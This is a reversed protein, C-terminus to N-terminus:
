SPVSVTSSPAASTTRRASSPAAPGVPVKVCALSPVSGHHDCSMCCAPSRSPMPAGHPPTYSGLTTVGREKMDAKLFYQKARRNCSAMARYFSHHGESAQGSPIAANAPIVLRKSIVGAHTILDRCCLPPYRPTVPYLRAQQSCMAANRRRSCLNKSATKCPSSYDRGRRSSM